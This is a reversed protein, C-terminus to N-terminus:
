KWTSAAELVGNYMTTGSAALNLTPEVDEDDLTEMIDREFIEINDGRRDRFMSFDQAQEVKINELCRHVINDQKLQLLEVNRPVLPFILKLLMRALLMMHELYIFLTLKETITWSEYEHSAFILLFMNTSAALIGYIDFATSWPENNRARRPLPRQRNELLSKRDINIELITSLLTAACVWPSTVAFLTSFGHSILIEDFDNFLSHKTKKSQQEAASMDALELLTHDRLLAVISQGHVLSRWWLEAKPALFEILNSVTMRFVVFVALQSRLDLFCDDRMCEMESGFLYQHSKFFALYYLVFYSMIFKFIMVKCLMHTEHEAETRHNERTTLWFSLTNMWKNMVEVLIAIFLQWTLIGGTTSAKMNHRGISLLLIMFVLAVGSFLIVTWSLAYHRIRDKWDYFPEVQATVPNIRPEGHHEPRCPELTEVLDLTGWGIAYKAEQRRWFYPLFTSWVSILICFPIATLNDPTGVLLDLFELALGVAAIPLLWKWYFSLFLFYFAIKDGFYDHVRNAHEEPMMIWEKWSAIEAMSKNEHLPFYGKLEKQYLLNGINIGACDKDKSTIIHHIIYIKDLTKFIADSDPFDDETYTKYIHAIVRRDRFQREPRGPFDRRYEAYADLYQKKLQLKYKMRAATEKLKAASAGIKVIVEDRDRNYYCYLELGCNQLSKLIADRRQKWMQEQPKNLDQQEEYKVSKSTKYKFVMCLDYLRRQKQGEPGDGMQIAGSSFDDIKSYAPQSSSMKPEWGLHPPAPPAHSLLGLGGAVRETAAALDQAL